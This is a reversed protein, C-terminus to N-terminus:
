SRVLALNRGFVKAVKPFEQLLDPYRTLNRQMLRTLTTPTNVSLFEALKSKNDTGCEIIAAEAVSVQTRAELYALDWRLREPTGEAAAQRLPLDQVDIWPSKRCAALVAGYDLTAKLESVNGPWDHAALTIGAPPALSLPANSAASRSVQLLYSSLIPIDAKRERLPPIRLTAAGATGFTKLLDGPDECLLYLVSDLPHVAPLESMPFSRDRMAERLFKLVEDPLTDAARIVLGGGHADELLGRQRGPGSVFGTLSRIIDGVPLNQPPLVALPAVRRGRMRLTHHSRAALERGSGVEGSIVVVQTGSSLIKGIEERVKRIVESIGIMESPYMRNLLGTAVGQQRRLQGQQVVADFLLALAGTSHRTKDVYLLAGAQLAELYTETDAFATAVVVPQYPDMQQIKRLVELGEKGVELRMDTVILDFRRPSYVEWFENESHAVTIRYAGDFEKQLEQLFATDDDLICIESSM